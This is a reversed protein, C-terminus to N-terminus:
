QFPGESEPQPKSDGELKSEPATAPQDVGGQERQQAKPPPKKLDSQIQEILDGMAGFFGLVLSLVIGSVFLFSTVGIGVEFGTFIAVVLGVFLCFLFWLSVIVIWILNGATILLWGLGVAILVRFTWKLVVKLPAFIRERLGHDSSEVENADEEM